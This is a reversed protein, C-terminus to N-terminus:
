QAAGAALRCRAGAVCHDGCGCDRCLERDVGAVGVVEGADVPRFDDCQWDVRESVGSLRVGEARLAVV